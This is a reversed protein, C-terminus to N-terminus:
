TRLTSLINLLQEKENLQPNELVHNLLEELINGMEKGEPVGAEILDKGSIALTKRSICDKNNIIDEYIDQLRDVYLLKEKQVSQGKALIDGWM